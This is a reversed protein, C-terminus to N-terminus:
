GVNERNVQVFPVMQIIVWPDRSTPLSQLAQYTMTQSIETKKPDVVPSVATVTVEEEIAGMEMTLTLNTNRGVRVIIGEEIKTKFGDLEMKIVYDIEPFLSLFRFKGEASTIQTM